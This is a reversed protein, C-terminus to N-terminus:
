RTNNLAVGFDRIADANTLDYGQGTMSKGWIIYGTKADPKAQFEPLDLDPLEFAEVAVFIVDNEAASRRM